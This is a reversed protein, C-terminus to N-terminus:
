ISTVPGHGKNLLEPNPCALHELTTMLPVTKMKSNLQPIDVWREPIEQHIVITSGYTGTVSVIRLKHAACDIVIKQFIGDIKNGDPDTALGALEEIVIFTAKNTEKDYEGNLDIAATSGNALKGIVKVEDGPNPMGDPKAVPKTPVAQVVPTPPAINQVHVAPDNKHQILWTEGILFVGIISVILAIAATKM